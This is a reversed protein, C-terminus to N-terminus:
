LLHDRLKDLGEKYGYGWAQNCINKAKTIQALLGKLSKWADEWNSEQAQIQLDRSRIVDRAYTLKSEVTTNHTDRNKM